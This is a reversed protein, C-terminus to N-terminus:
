KKEAPDAKSDVDGPQQQDVSARVVMTQAVLDASRQRLPSMVIMVLPDVLRLVNRMLIQASTVPQGDVSVVRLGTLWKGATRGTMLETLTTHIVYVAIAGILIELSAIPPTFLADHLTTSEALIFILALWVPLLDVLGAFFRPLLPAPVPPEVPQDPMSWQRYISAGVSFAMASLFLVHIGYPWRIDDSEGGTMVQAAAAVSQGDTEYRQEFVKKAHPGFIRIFGGGFTIAPPGDLAESGKWDLKVPKTGTSFFL